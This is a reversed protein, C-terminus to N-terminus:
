VAEGARVRHILSRVYDITQEETCHALAWARGNHASAPPQRRITGSNKSPPRSHPLSRRASRHPRQPRRDFLGLHREVRHGRPGAFLVDGDGDDRPRLSSRAHLLPLVMFRSQRIVAEAERRPINLKVTVNPPVALGRLNAPTAVLVLPIHPIRRMAELLTAYDRAQSGVACIAQSNSEM